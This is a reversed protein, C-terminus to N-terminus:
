RGVLFFAAFPRPGHNAFEFLQKRNGFTRQVM